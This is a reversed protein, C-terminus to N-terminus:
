VLGAHMKDQKEKVKGRRRGRKGETKKRLREVDTLTQWLVRSQGERKWKRNVRGETEKKMIEEKKLM